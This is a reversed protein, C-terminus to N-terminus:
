QVRSAKVAAAEPRRSLLDFFAREIEKLEREMSVTTSGLATEIRADGAELAADSALEVPRAIARVVESWSSLTQPAVLLRVSTASDMQDLEHRVLGALLSPDIQSERHLIRRAIALTLGVIEGEAQRFYEERQRAFEEIAGAVAARACQIEREAEQQIQLTITRREREIGEALLQDFDPAAEAPAASATDEGNPSSRQSDEEEFAPPMRSGEGAERYEMPVYAASLGRSRVASVPRPLPLAPNSVPEYSSNM